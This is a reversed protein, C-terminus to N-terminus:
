LAPVVIRSSEDREINDLVYKFLSKDLESYEEVSEDYLNICHDLMEDLKSKSASTIKEELLGVHDQADAQVM